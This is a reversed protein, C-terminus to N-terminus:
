ILLRGTEYFQDTMEQHARRAAAELLVLAGGDGDLYRGVLEELDDLHHQCMYEVVDADSFIVRWRDLDSVGYM